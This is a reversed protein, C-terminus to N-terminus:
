YISGDSPSSLVYRVELFVQNFCQLLALLVSVVVCLFMPSRWQPLTSCSLLVLLLPTLLTGLVTSVM